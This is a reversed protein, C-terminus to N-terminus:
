LTGLIFAVLRSFLWDMLGLFLGSAFTVALVIYTLRWAQRWTPWQVKRLEGRTERYFNVIGELWRPYQRAKRPKTRTRTRAATKAKAPPQKTEAVKPAAADGTKEKRLKLKPKAM